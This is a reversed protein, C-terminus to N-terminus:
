HLKIGSKALEVKKEPPLQAFDERSMEKAGEAGGAGRSGVGAGRAGTPKLLEPRAKALEAVGDAVSILKGDGTKYLLDDGEWELNPSLFSEVVDPALWEHKSLAGNLNIKRQSDRYKKNALEIGDRSEALERELRKLKAEYQKAAEAQGKSDALEDIDDLSDVGLKELLQSREGELRSLKERLQKRGNISENRAEDRQNTLDSVFSELDSFREDGLVEKLESIDM